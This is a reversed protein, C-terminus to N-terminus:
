INLILAVTKRISQANMVMMSAYQYHELLNPDRVLLQQLLHVLQGFRRREGYDNGEYKIPPSPSRYLVPIITGSARSQYRVYYYPFDNLPHTQFRMSCENMLDQNPLYVRYYQPSSSSENFGDLEHHRHRPYYCCCWYCRGIGGAM